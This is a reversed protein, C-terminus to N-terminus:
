VLEQGRQSDPEVRVAAVVAFTLGPELVLERGDAEPRVAHDVALELRGDRGPRVGLSWSDRTKGASPILTSRFASPVTM